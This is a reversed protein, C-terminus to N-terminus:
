WHQLKGSQKFNQFKVQKLCITKISVFRKIEVQEKENNIPQLQIM